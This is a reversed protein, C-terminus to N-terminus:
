GGPRASRPPAPQPTLKVAVFGLLYGGLLVGLGVALGPKGIMCTFIGTVVGTRTLVSSWLRPEHIRDLVEPPLAGDEAAGVAAVMARMDKGTLPEGLLVLTTWGVLGVIIWGQWSWAVIALWLGAALVTLRAIPGFAASARIAKLPERVQGTSWASRLGTVGIWDAILVVAATVHCILLVSALTM